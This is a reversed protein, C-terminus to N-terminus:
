LTRVGEGVAVAGYHSAFIIIVTGNIPIEPAGAPLYAEILAEENPDLSRHPDLNFTHNTGAVRIEVISYEELIYSRWYVNRYSVVISNWNYGEKMLFISRSGTNRVYFSIKSAEIGEILLEIRVNSSGENRLTLDRLHALADLTSLMATSMIGAFIILGILIITSSMVISFGM